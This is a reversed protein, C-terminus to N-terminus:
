HVSERDVPRFTPPDVPPPRESDAELRERIARFREIWGLRRALRGRHRIETDSVRDDADLDLDAAAM